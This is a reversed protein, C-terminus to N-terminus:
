RPKFGIAGLKLDYLVSYAYYPPLGAKAGTDLRVTPCSGPDATNGDLCLPLERDMLMPQNRPGPRQPVPMMRHGARDAESPNVILKGPQKDGPKPLQVIWAQDGIFTLPNIAAEPVPAARMSLGLIASFGEKPLGDGGIRYDEHSLRSAPCDPKKPTCEVARVVQLLIPQETSAVGIKVVAKVLPGRLAVGSGFPRSREIGTDEYRAGRLAEVMVRLGISGTDLMAEIPGSGGVTVPVWYRLMGDGLQRQYIPVELRQTAAHATVGALGMGLLLLGLFLAGTLPRNMCMGHYFTAPPRKAGGRRPTPGRGNM